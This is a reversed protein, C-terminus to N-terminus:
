GSRRGARAGRRYTPSGDFPSAEQELRRVLEDHIGPTAAAGRRVAGVLYGLRLAAEGDPRDGASAAVQTAVELLGAGVLQIEDASSTRRMCRSIPAGDVRVQDPAARLARPLLSPLERCASPLASEDSSCGVLAVSAACLALLRRTAM